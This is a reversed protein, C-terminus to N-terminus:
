VIDSLTFIPIYLALIISAILLGLIILILPQVINSFYNLISYVQTTYYNALYNVVNSIDDSSEGISIIEIIEKNSLIKSKKLSDTFNYGLNLNKIILKIEEFVLDNDIATAIANLSDVLTVNGKLLVNLMQFFMSRYILKYFNSLGFSKFLVWNKIKGLKTKRFSYSFFLLFVLVILALYLISKTTLLNSIKLIYYTSRPLPKNFTAFIDNFRPVIFLFLALVIVLFVLFTIAPTVLLKKTKNKFNIIRKSYSIFYDLSNALSGTHEGSLMLSCFLQDFTNKHCYFANGISQGSEILEKIDALIKKLYANSCSDKIIGLAQNIRINSKLLAVLHSITNIKEKYSIKSKFLSAKAKILGIDEYLLLAILHDKSRAWTQGKHIAGSLDIGTWIYKQM